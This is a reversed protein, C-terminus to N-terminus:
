SGGAGTAPEVVKQKAIRATTVGLIAGCLLGTVAMFLYLLVAQGPVGSVLLAESLVLIAWWLGSLMALGRDTRKELRVGDTRLIPLLLGIIFACLITTRRWQAIGYFLPSGLYSYSIFCVVVLALIRRFVAPGRNSSLASFLWYCAPIVACISVLIALGLFAIGFYSLIYYYTEAFQM